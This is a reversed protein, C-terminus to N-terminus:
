SNNACRVITDSLECGKIIEGNMTNHHIDISELDTRDTRGSDTARVALKTSNGAYAVGALTKAGFTNNRVEANQSDRIDIGGRNASSGNGHVENNEFLAQNPSNEHRIGARDNNVVVSSYVWFGNARDPDKKCGVDCWLGNGQEDHVFV